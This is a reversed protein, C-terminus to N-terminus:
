FRSIKSLSVLTVIIILDPCHGFIFFLKNPMASRSVQNSSLIKKKGFRLVYTKKGNEDMHLYYINFFFFFRRGVLGGLSVRPLGHWLIPRVLTFSQM